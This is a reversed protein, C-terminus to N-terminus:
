RKKTSSCCGREATQLTSNFDDILYNILLAAASSVEWLHIYAKRHTHIHTYRHSLSVSLSLIKLPGSVICEASICFISKGNDNFFLQWCRGKIGEPSAATFSNPQRFASHKDTLDVSEFTAGRQSLNFTHCWCVRWKSCFEHKTVSKWQAELWNSYNSFQIKLTNKISSWNLKKWFLVKM